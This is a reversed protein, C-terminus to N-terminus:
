IGESAGQGLAVGGATGGASSVPAEAAATYSQNERGLLPEFGLNLEGHGKEEM